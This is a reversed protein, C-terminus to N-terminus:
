DQPVKKPSKDQPSAKKIKFKELDEEAKKKRAQARKALESASIRSIYALEQIRRSNEWLAAEAKKIEHATDAVIKTLEENSSKTIEGSTLATLEKKSSTDRSSM